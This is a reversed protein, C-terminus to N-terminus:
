KKKTNLYKTLQALVLGLGVTIWNPMNFDLFLQPLVDTLAAVGMAGTHWYFAKMRKNTLLDIMFKKFDEM